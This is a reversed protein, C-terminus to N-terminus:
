LSAFYADSSIRPDVYFSGSGCSARASDPYEGDVVNSGHQLDHSGTANDGYINRLYSALPYLSMSGSQSLAAGSFSNNMMSMMGSGNSNNSHANHGFFQHQQQEFQPQQQFQQEQYVQPQVQHPTWALNSDGHVLTHQQQQQQFASPSTLTEDSEPRHRKANRAYRDEEGGQGSFFTDYDDHENRLTKGYGSRQSRDVSQGNRVSRM